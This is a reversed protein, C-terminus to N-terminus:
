TPVILVAKSDDLYSIIKAQGLSIACFHLPATPLCLFCHVTVLNKPPGWGHIVKFHSQFLDQKWVSPSFSVVLGM